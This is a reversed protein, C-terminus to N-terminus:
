LRCLSGSEQCRVMDGTHTHRSTPRGAGGGGQGRTSSHRALRAVRAALLQRRTTLRRWGPGWRRAAERRCSRGGAGGGRALQLWRAM